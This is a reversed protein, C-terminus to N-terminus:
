AAASTPASWSRSRSPARGSAGSRTQRAIIKWQMKEKPRYAPRDTFAYIRWDQSDHQRYSHGTTFAQRDNAAATIFLNRSGAIDRLSFQPLGEANTTARLRRWRWGNEYFHEWLTLNANAIPASTLANSFFALAQKGSSKLVLAADSVILVDRAKTAGDGTAELLYAGMALKGDVRTQESLPKYDATDVTKTWTKVPQKGRTSIRTMWNGM